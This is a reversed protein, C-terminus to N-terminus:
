RAARDGVRGDVVLRPVEDELHRLVEALVGHAGDGHVRGVAQHAAQLHAVGAVADGHGDAFAVSPRMMFTIPSGTSSLPGIAAASASGSGGRPARREGVLLRLDLRELGADLDDVQERGVLAAALDAEEAAGADALGDDDQLEDVVDGLLVAAHRHEAADALARALAVVEVELHLLRLEGVAVGDDRPRRQDVALHVLRRARAGADAQGASVTASYKRSSSPM